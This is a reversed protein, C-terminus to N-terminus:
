PTAEFVFEAEFPPDANPSAASGTMAVIANFWRMHKCTSTGKVGTADVRDLKTQCASDDYATLHRGDAVRDITLYTGFSVTSSPVAGSLRLYWGDNGAWVVDAGFDKYLAADSALHDLVIVEDGITVTAKGNHYTAEPEGFPTGPDFSAAPDLPSIPAPVALGLLYECGGSSVAALIVFGAFALRRVARSLVDNM